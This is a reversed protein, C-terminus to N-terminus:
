ILFKWYLENWFLVRIRDSSPRKAFTCYGVSWVIYVSEIM